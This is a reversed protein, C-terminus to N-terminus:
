RIAEGRGGRDWSAGRLADPEHTTGIPGVANTFEGRMKPEGGVPRGTSLDLM